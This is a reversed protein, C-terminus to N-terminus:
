GGVKTEAHIRYKGGNLNHVCALRTNPELAQFIHHARAKIEIARFAAYDGLWKGDIWVRAAGNAILTVHDHDHSHQPVVMGAHKLIIARFYLGGVDDVYEVPEHRMGGTVDPLPHDMVRDKEV